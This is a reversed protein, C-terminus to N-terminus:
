AGQVEQLVLFRELGAVVDAPAYGVRLCAKARHVAIDETKASWIYTPGLLHLAVNDAMAQLEQAISGRTM